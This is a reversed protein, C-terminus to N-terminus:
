GFSESSSITVFSVGLIVVGAVLIGFLGLKSCGADGGTRDGILVGPM